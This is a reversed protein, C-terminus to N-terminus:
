NIIGNYDAYNNGKSGTREIDEVINIEAEQIESRLLAWDQITFESNQTARVRLANKGWPEIRVTENDYRYELYNKKNILM